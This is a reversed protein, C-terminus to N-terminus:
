VEMVNYEVQHGDKLSAYEDNPWSTILTKTSSQSGCGSMFKKMWSQNDDDENKNM